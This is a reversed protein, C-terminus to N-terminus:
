ASYSGEAKCASYYSQWLLVAMLKASYSQGAVSWTGAAKGARGQGARCQPMDVPGASGGPSRMCNLQAVYQCLWFLKLAFASCDITAYSCDAVAVAGAVCFQLQVGAQKGANYPIVVTAWAIGRQDQFLHGDRCHM